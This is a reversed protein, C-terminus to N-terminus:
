SEVCLTIHYKGNAGTAEIIIENNIRNLLRCDKTPNVNIENASQHLEFSAVNNKQVISTVGNIATKLGGFGFGSSVKGVIGSDDERFNIEVFDTKRSPTIDLKLNEKTGMKFKWHSKFGNPYKEEKENTKVVVFIEDGSKEGPYFCEISQLKIKM